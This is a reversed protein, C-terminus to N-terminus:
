RFRASRSAGLLSGIKADLTESMVSGFQNNWRLVQTGNSRGVDVLSFEAGGQAHFSRM